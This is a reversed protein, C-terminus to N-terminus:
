AANKRAEKEAQRRRFISLNFITSSPKASKMEKAIDFQEHPIKGESDTHLAAAGAPTAPTGSLQNNLVSEQSPIGSVDHDSVGRSIDPNNFEGANQVHHRSEEPRESQM